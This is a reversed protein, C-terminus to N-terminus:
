RDPSQLRLPRPALPARHLPLLATGCPVEARHPAPAPMEQMVSKLELYEKSFAVKLLRELTHAKVRDSQHALLRGMVGEGAGTDLYALLFNLKFAARTADLAKKTTCWLAFTGFTYAVAAVAIIWNAIANSEM